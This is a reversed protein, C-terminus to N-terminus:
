LHNTRRYWKEKEKQDMKSQWAAFGERDNQDHQTRYHVEALHRREQADRLLIGDVSDPEPQPQTKSAPVEEKQRWVEVFHERGTEWFMARGSDTDIEDLLKDRCEASVKGLNHAVIRLERERYLIGQHDRNDLDVKWPVRVRHVEAGIGYGCHMVFCNGDVSNYGEKHGSKWRGDQQVAQSGDHTFAESEASPPVTPGLSATDAPYTRRQRSAATSLDIGTFKLVSSADFSDLPM